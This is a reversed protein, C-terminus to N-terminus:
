RRRSKLIVQKKSSLSGATLSMELTFNEDAMIRTGNVDLYKGNVSCPISFSGARNLPSTLCSYVILEEGGDETAKVKYHSIVAASGTLTGRVQYKGPSDSFISMTYGYDPPGYVFLKIGAFILALCLTICVGAIIKKRSSSRVKRLYDVDKGEYNVSECDFNEKLSDKAENVAKACSPCQAVHADILEMTKESVLNDAYLPILDQVVECPIKRVNDNM